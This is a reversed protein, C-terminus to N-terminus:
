VSEEVLTLTIGGSNASVTPVHLMHMKVAAGSAADPACWGEKGVDSTDATGFPQVVAANGNSFSGALLKAETTLPVTDTSDATFAAFSITRPTFGGIVYGSDGTIVTTPINALNVSSLNIWTHVAGTGPNESDPVRIDRTWDKPGGVFAAGQFTGRGVAPDLTPAAFLQQDSSITITTDNGPAVGSRVRATAEAGSVVAAVNAINIIATAITTADNSARNAVARLNTVGGDGEANYAGGIRSVTKIPEPTAPNTISLHGTGDTDYAISDFNTGTHAVTASEAGKLAGQGVPYTEVGFGVSPALNNLNLVNTGDVVGASDTDFTSSEAGTVTDRVSIRAALLQAVDGRDAVTLAVTTPGVGPAVGIVAPQGAGFDAITIQDFSKDATVQINFTDGSKLETQIGPYGGTFIAATISPPPDIVVAIKDSAAAVGNPDTSVADVDGSAPLTVDVTGRYISGVLPLVAAVANVSMNPYSSEVLVRIASEPSTASQLITNGPPDDYVKASIPQGSQTLLDVVRVWGIRDDAGINQILISSQKVIAIDSTRNLRITRAQRVLKVTM